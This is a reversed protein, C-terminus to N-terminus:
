LWVVFQARIRRSGSGIRDLFFVVAKSRRRRTAGFLFGIGAALALALTAYPKHKLSADIADILAESVATRLQRIIDQTDEVPEETASSVNSTASSM